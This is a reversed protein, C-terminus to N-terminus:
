EYNNLYTNPYDDEPYRRFKTCFQERYRQVDDREHGDTDVDKKWLGYRHGIRKMWRTASSLLATTQVAGTIMPFLETNLYDQFREPTQQRKSQVHLWEGCKKM